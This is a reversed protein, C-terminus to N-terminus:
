SCGACGVYFNRAAGHHGPLHAIEDVGAAVAVHFDYASSVHASVRLKHAHALDVILPVLAPDLGKKGFFEPDDRRLEYEESLLLFIKIFDPKYQLILPWKEELDQPEQLVFYAHDALTEKTFGEYAGYGLLSERLSIPHGGPGTVGGNAFSVDVSDPRNFLHREKGTERPLNSLIKVYFIGADLYRQLTEKTLYDGGLNHNHAECLPPIVYKGSLDVVEDIQEPKTFRLRGWESYARRKIFKEGDFWRAGRFEYTRDSQDAISITPTTCAISAFTFLIAHIFLKM